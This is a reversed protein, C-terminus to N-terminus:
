PKLKENWGIKAPDSPPLKISEELKKNNIFEVKLMKNDILPSNEPPIITKKIITNNNDTNNIGNNHCYNNDDFTKNNIKSDKKNLKLKKRILNQMPIWSLIIFGIIIIIGICIYGLLPALIVTKLSSAMENNLTIKQEFWLAPFYMFPAEEYLAINSVPKIQLNIQLRAAVELVIGTMPELVIYFEHKEKDSKKDSDYFQLYYPDAAYYHPYSIYIPAGYRCDSTDFIGSPPSTKNVVSYCKNESYITGNDITKAGAAYKYGKIGMVDIEQEFDFTISRCLDPTFITVPKEKTQQPSYFEGASGNVVSCEDKYYDINGKYNWNKVSGIQSIDGEGTHM